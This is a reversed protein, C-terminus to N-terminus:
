VWSQRILENDAAPRNRMFEILRRRKDQNIIETLAADITDTSSTTGLIERALDVKDEDLMLATKKVM